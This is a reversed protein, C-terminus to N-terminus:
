EPGVLNKNPDATGSNCLDVNDKTLTGCNPCVARRISYHRGCRCSVRLYQLYAWSSRWKRKEPETVVQMVSLNGRYLDFLAKFIEGNRKHFPLSFRYLGYGVALLAVAFVFPSVEGFREVQFRPSSIALLRAIGLALNGLGLGFYFIVSFALVFASYLLGDAVSWAKDVTQRQEHSLSLWLRPWFFVTDMGYRNEPYDEYNALINGLLTPYSACPNGNEDVPFMGLTDWLQGRAIKDRRDTSAELKKDRERLKHVRETQLKMGWNFLTRPWGAVGEFVQYIIGNLLSVVQGVGGVLLALLVVRYWSDAWWGYGPLMPWFSAVLISGPLVVRLFVPFSLLGSIKEVAHSPAIPM